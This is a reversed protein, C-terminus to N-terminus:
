RRVRRRPHLSNASPFSWCALSTPNSISLLTTGAEPRAAVNAAWVRGTFPDWSEPQLGQVRFTAKVSHPMNSTNALFYIEAESTKRHIFGIEPASPSLEVDPHLLSKLKRALQSKEDTVFHAPASTGEFFRQSLSRIQGQEAETAQLGPAIGPIRRTAVLM